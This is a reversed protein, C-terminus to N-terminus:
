IALHKGGNVLPQFTSMVKYQEFASEMVVGGPQEFIVAGLIATWGTYIVSHTWRNQRAYYGFVPAFFMLMALILLQIFFSEALDYLWQSIYALIAITCVDGM